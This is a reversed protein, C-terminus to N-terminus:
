VKVKLTDLWLPNEAANGHTTTLAVVLVSVIKEDQSSMLQPLENWPKSRTQISLLTVVLRTKKTPSRLALSGKQYVITPNTKEKIKKM